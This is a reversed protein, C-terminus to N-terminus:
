TTSVRMQNATASVFARVKLSAKDDGEIKPIPSVKYLSALVNLALDSGRM